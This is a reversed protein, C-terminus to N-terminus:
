ILLISLISSLRRSLFNGHKRSYEIVKRNPGTWQKLYFVPIYHHDRPQGNGPKPAPTM